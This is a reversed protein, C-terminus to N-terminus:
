LSVQEWASHLRRFNDDITKDVTWGPWPTMEIVLDGRKKANLFGIELLLELIRSLEPIDIEGGPFGVPPHTDGYRPNNRDGLVCNGLHVRALQPAVTHIAHAFSEGMLPVHAVDLEIGLNDVEPELSEILAVCQDTSGYLFKKDIDMDFPELLATIGHPKLEKCLWRCFEAFATHHAPTAEAPQPGGSAFIFGTAGIAAAQEIMDRVIMRVQAQETVSTTALSLKRLPFFHTAFTINTKGCARLCPVLETRATEDYPLCCDFTEIDDRTALAKLTAVHEDPHEGCDPYLMHHVLGLRSYHTISQKM